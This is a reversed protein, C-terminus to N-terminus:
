GFRKLSPRPQPKLCRDDTPEVVAKWEDLGYVGLQVAANRVVRGHEVAVEAPQGPHEDGDLEDRSEEKADIVVWISCAVRRGGVRADVEDLVADVQAPEDAPNMEPAGVQQEDHREQM